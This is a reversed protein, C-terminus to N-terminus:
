GDGKRARRWKSPPCGEERCFAASFAAPTAYGVARAVQAVPLRGDLLLRQAESMRLERAYQGVSKGMVQKFVVCLHSHGCHVSRALQEVMPIHGDEHLLAQRMIRAADHALCIDAWCLGEGRLRLQEDAWDFLGLLIRHLERESRERPEADGLGWVRARSMLGVLGENVADPDLLSLEERAVDFDRRYTRANREFFEPTLCISTSSIHDGHTLQANVTREPQHFAVVNNGERMHSPRSPTYRVIERSGCCLCLSEPPTEQLVFDKRVLMEVRSILTGDLPNSAMMWGASLRGDTRAAVRNIDDHFVRAGLQELQPEFFRRM